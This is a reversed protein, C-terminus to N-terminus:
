VGHNNPGIGAIRCRPSAPFPGITRGVLQTGNKQQTMSYITCLDRLRTFPVSERRKLEQGLGDHCQRVFRGNGLVAGRGLDRHRLLQAM